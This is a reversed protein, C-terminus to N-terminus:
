VKQTWIDRILDKAKKDDIEYNGTLLGRARGVDVIRAIKEARTQPIDDGQADIASFMTLESILERLPAYRDKTGTLGLATILQQNRRNPNPEADAKIVKAAVERVWAELDVGEYFGPYESTIQDCIGGAAVDRWRKLASSRKM